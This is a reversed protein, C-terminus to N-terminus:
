GYLCHFFKRVHGQKTLYRQLIQLAFVKPKRLSYQENGDNCIVTELISTAGKMCVLNASASRFNIAMNLESISGVFHTASANVDIDVTWPHCEASKSISIKTRSTSLFGLFILFGFIIEHFLENVM